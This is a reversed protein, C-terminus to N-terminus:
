EAKRAKKPKVFYQQKEFYDYNKVAKRYESIEVKNVIIGLINAGATTLKAKAEKIFKITGTGQKTVLVTGDIQAAMVSADFASAFSPMDFIIYDYNAKVEELFKDCNTSCFMGMISADSVGSSIFDLNETNTKAVVDSLKAGGNLYDALGLENKDSHKKHKAAKRMDADILLTKWGSNAMSIALNISVTTSGVGPECGCIMFTKLNDRQKRIHIEAVVRDFADNLIESTVKYFNKVEKM